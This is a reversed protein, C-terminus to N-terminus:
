FTVGVNVGVSVNVSVGLSVGNPDGIPEGISDADGFSYCKEFGRFNYIDVYRTKTRFGKLKGAIDVAMKFFIFIFNMKCEIKPANGKRDAQPSPSKIRM